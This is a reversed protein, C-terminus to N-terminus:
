VTFLERARGLLVYERMSRFYASLDNEIESDFHEHIMGILQSETTPRPRRLRHRNKIAGFLNEIPNLQPSYAPLYMLRIGKSSAWARVSEGHHFRVNDMVLVLNETAAFRPWLEEDLFTLLHERNYACNLTQYAVVGTVQIAAIVSVNSGKAATRHILAPQNALSYGYTADTHLNFGTEDLFVLDEDRVEAINNCYLTRDNIVRESNRNIPVHQLRKRTYGIEKICKAIVRTTCQTGPPLRSAIGKMTLSNDSDIIARIHAKLPALDKKVRGGSKRSIPTYTSATDKPAAQNLIRQASRLSQGTFEKITKASAGDRVMRNVVEVERPKLVIHKKRSSTPTTQPTSHDTVSSSHLGNGTGSHVPSQNFSPTETLNSQSNM